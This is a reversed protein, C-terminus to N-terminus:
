PIAALIVTSRSRSDWRRWRSRLEGYMRFNNFVTDVPIAIRDAIVMKMFLGWVMFIGGSAVRKADWVQIQDISRM